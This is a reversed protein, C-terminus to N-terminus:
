RNYNVTKYSKNIIFSLRLCLSYFQTHTLRKRMQMHEITKIKKFLPFNYFLTIFVILLVFKRSEEM